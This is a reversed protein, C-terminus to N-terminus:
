RPDHGRLEALMALAHKYELAEAVHRSRNAAPRASSKGALEELADLVDADAELKRRAEPAADAARRLETVADLFARRAKALHGAREAWAAAMGPTGPALRRLQTDLVEVEAALARSESTPRTRWGIPWPGGSRRSSRRRGRRSRRWFRTISISGTIRRPRWRPSRAEQEVVWRRGKEPVMGRERLLALDDRLLVARYEEPTAVPGLVVKPRHDRNYARIARKVAPDDGLIEYQKRAEMVLLRMGTTIRENEGKYRDLDAKYQQEFADRVVRAQNRQAARSGTAVAGKLRSLEDLMPGYAIQLKEAEARFQQAKLQRVPQDTLVYANGVRYLGKADLVVDLPRDDDEPAPSKAADPSPVSQSPVVTGFALLAAGAVILVKGYSRPTTM